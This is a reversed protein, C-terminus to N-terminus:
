GTLERLDAALDAAAVDTPWLVRLRGDPGIGTLTATHDMSYDGGEETTTEFYVGYTAAVRSLDEAAGTVARVRPDFSSVYGVLAEPTDRAPDVTVMLVQVDSAAGGLLELAAATKALTTPCVDPCNTYGFFVVVVQGSLAELDVPSGDDAYALGAMTPAAGDTKLITGHYLYPVLMAKLAFAGVVV